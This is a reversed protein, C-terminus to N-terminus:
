RYEEYRPITALDLDDGPATADLPPALTPRPTLPNSGLLADRLGQEELDRQRQLLIQEEAAVAELFQALLPSNVTLRQQGHQRRQARWEELILQWERESRGHVLAFADAICTLWQGEVFAYVVGMNYPEYRVPVRQGAVAPIRMREHWYHLGHVTLGRAPHITAYGTRTTPRTLMLFEDSYPIVRHLRAGALQMGQAFAERPSQGLAPHELQDYVDYAWESVRAAFRELTWVALRDPDVERTMQRPTKSAQTNGRLQNLFETTATGFLREIVSGFRPQQAPREKKTMFYRSLLTEFYVSGFEPGRDVVLEQPLRQHRQVCVRFTMMVSRYSPPDYTVYLALIRRSYADTLLTLYPRALPKGTVSSVLLVDLETHDLHAVALPREGHRPTTQDLHWFFPQAAYAARRGLRRATVDPTTFRARMRYFTRESVPSLGQRACAERYLRYVAAARPAQPSAYHDKLYTALLQVSTEPARPSRNGRAAVHDLLGLYGCGCAVEAHRYAALWRQVSRATVTIPERRRYALIQRLRENAAHQAKPSARTLAERIEPTMPSPTAATGPQLAGRELLDQVHASSLRLAEGVEPRLTVSEGHVDAQWLRHDWIVLLPAVRAEDVRAATQSAQVWAAESRFLAVHDHRMLSTAALDTFLRRTALLAWVVDVSLAPYAETAEALRLGPHTDVLSLVLQEQEPDVPVPHAWFDQLFHLNQIYLPHYEASSRVQYRLGFPRAWADGPPCHWTGDGARQYRHPMSVALAELAHVPKWEEFTGGTTRLVFFDPTHWQTTQRGSTARYQLPLRMPQDYYELVTDDREMAYIAWLEVHQSEFQISRQMKPSPYRGAVNSARGRVKRVPSSTRITSLMEATDGSLDFRHCWARFEETTLMRTM